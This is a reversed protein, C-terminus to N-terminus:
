PVAQVMVLRVLDEVARDFAEVLLAKGVPEQLSAVVVFRPLVHTLTMRPFSFVFLAVAVPILSADRLWRFPTEGQM